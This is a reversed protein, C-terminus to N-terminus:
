RRAASFLEIMAKNFAPIDQPSRSTVWNDDVVTEKDQWTGGANVIDDKLTHYSTLTRGKVLGASVLEWPGHCIVAFPKGKQQMAKLFSQVEPVARMQDANVTGGPILVGDYDQEKADKISRDVKVKAGKDADHIAAQIEGQKPSVVSVAAGAAQLAKMPETLESQEFGNTALAAVRFGHLNNVIARRDQTLSFFGQALLAAFPIGPGACDVRQFSAPWVLAPVAPNMADNVIIRSDPRGGEVPM